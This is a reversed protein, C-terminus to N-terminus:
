GCDLEDQPPNGPDLLYGEVAGDVCGNLGYGTHQDATVVVLHGDELADAMNRTSQLPTAPDGTTGVVVIPGAGAGTITLPPAPPQPWVSCITLELMWGRGLRPAAAAFEAEHSYLDAPGTSGPDDLCGIAFYAELSDDWEGGGEYSYYDDYLDLIGRGDGGQLDALAHELQGWSGRSYMADSVATYLVGQTVPPRGAESPVPDADAAQALADFAGEADGGNHFACEPEASCQALFTAFTAEFGAAQQVNQTLYGVTPDVAGDLVAARVTSPFLTAWTAGLESGYSFGFYSIQEEGLAQRLTDMDRASDATSLHALLDGTREVCGQVFEEALAVLADQEVQDDPSSDVAFYRDYDDVCDVAPESYGTGRPDWAVIDFADLPAPGYIFEANSALVTGGFGPGGPNVLRSGIRAAPDAAPHRVVYLRITPGAPDAYDMPVELYGSETGFGDDQWEITSDGTPASTTPADAATTSTTPGATTTSTTSATTTGAASGEAGTSRVGADDACAALVLVASGIATATRARARWGQRGRHQGERQGGASQMVRM